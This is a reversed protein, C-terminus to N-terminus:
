RQGLAQKVRLELGENALGDTVNRREPDGDRKPRLGGIKIARTM